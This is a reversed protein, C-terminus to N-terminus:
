GSGAVHDCDLGVDGARDQREDSRFYVRFM